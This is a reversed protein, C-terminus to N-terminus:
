SRPACVWVPYAHNSDLMLRQICLREVAADAPPTESVFASLTSGYSDSLGLQSPSLLTFQFYGVWDAPRAPPALLPQILVKPPSRIVSSVYVRQSVSLLTSLQQANVARHHAYVQELLLPSLALTLTSQLILFALM